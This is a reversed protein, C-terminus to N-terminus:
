SRRDALRAAIGGMQPRKGRRPGRRRRLRRDGSRRSNARRACCTRSRARSTRTTWWCQSTRARTSRRSAGRFRVRTSRPRSGDARAGARACPWGRASSRTPSTSAGACRYRVAARAGDPARVEFETAALTVRLDFARWAADSTLAVTVAGPLSAALRRGWPDDVDVVPRRGRLRLAAARKAAFYAEMTPISTSTTRASTPSCRSPLASATWGACISRTRPCRWPARSIAATSCRGSRRAPARDGRPDHPRGPAGGRRGGLDGDRAARM